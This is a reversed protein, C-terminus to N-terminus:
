SHPRVDENASGAVRITKDFVHKDHRVSALLASVSSSLSLPLCCV